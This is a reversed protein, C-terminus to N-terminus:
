TVLIGDRHHLSSYSDQDLYTGDGELILTLDKPLKNGYGQQRIAGKFEEFTPTLTINRTNGNPYSVIAYSKTSYIRPRTMDGLATASLIERWDPKNKLEDFWESYSFNELGAKAIAHNAVIELGLDHPTKMDSELGKEIEDFTLKDELYDQWPFTTLCEIMLSATEKSVSDDLIFVFQRFLDRVGELSEMPRSTWSQSSWELWVSWEVLASWKDTVLKLVDPNYMATILSRMFETVHSDGSTVRTMFQKKTPLPFLRKVFVAYNEILYSIGKGSHVLRKWQAAWYYMVWAYSQHRDTESFLKDLAAVIMDPQDSGMPIQSYLLAGNSALYQQVSSWPYVHAAIYWATNGEGAFLTDDPDEHYRVSLATSRQPFLRTLVLQANPPQLGHLSSQIFPSGFWSELDKFFSPSRIMQDLSGLLDFHLMRAFYRRVTSSYLWITTTSSIFSMKRLRHYVMDSPSWTSWNTLIRNQAVEARDLTQIWAQDEECSRLVIDPDSTLTTELLVPLRNFVSSQRIRYFGENECEDGLGIPTILGGDQGVYPITRDQWEPNPYGHGYNPDLMALDIGQRNLWGVVYESEEEKEEKSESFRGDTTKSLFIKIWNPASFSLLAELQNELVVTPTELLPQLDATYT